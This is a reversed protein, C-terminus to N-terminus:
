KEDLIAFWERLAKEAEEEGLNIKINYLTDGFGKGLKVDMERKPNKSAESITAKMRNIGYKSKAIQALHNAGLDKKYESIMFAKVTPASMKVPPKDKLKAAPITNYIVSLAFYITSEKEFPEAWWPPVLNKIDPKIDRIIILALENLNACWLKHIDLTLEELQTLEKVKAILKELEVTPRLESLVSNIKSLDESCLNMADKFASSDWLMTRKKGIKLHELLDGAVNILNIVEECYRLDGALSILKSSINDNLQLHKITNHYKNNFYRNEKLHPPIDM